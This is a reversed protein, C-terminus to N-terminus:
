SSLFMFAETSVCVFQFDHCMVELNLFIYYMNASTHPPRHTPTHTPTPTHTHTHITYEM